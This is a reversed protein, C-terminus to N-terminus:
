EKWKDSGINETILEFESVQKEIELKKLYQDFITNLIKVVGFKWESFSDGIIVKGVYLYPYNNIIGYSSEPATMFTSVSYFPIEGKDPKVSLWLRGVGKNEKRELNHTFTQFIYKILRADGHQHGRFISNISSKPTDFSKLYKETSEKSYSNRGTRRNYSNRLDAGPEFDSWYFGILTSLSFKDKNELKLSSLSPDKRLSEEYKLSTILDFRISSDADLFEKFDAGPEPGGHCAIIYETKKSFQDHAGLLLASPLTNYFSYLTPKFDELQSGPYKELEAIRGKREHNKREEAGAIENYTAELLGYRENLIGEHNGRLLFVQNPNLYRLQALTCLVEFGYLQRDSYDGLFVINLTPSTLKYTEPDILKNDRLYALLYGISRADGHIDGIFYITDKPNLIKRELFFNVENANSSASPKVGKLWAGQKMPASETAAALIALIREKPLSPAAVPYKEGDWFPVLGLLENVWQNYPPFSLSNSQASSSSSISPRDARQKVILPEEDEEQRPMSEQPQEEAIRSEIETPLVAPEETEEVSPISQEKAPEVKESQKLQAYLTAIYDRTRRVFMQFPTVSHLSLTLTMVICVVISKLKM